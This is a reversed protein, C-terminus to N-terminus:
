GDTSPERFSPSSYLFHKRCQSRRTFVPIPRCFLNDKDRRFSCVEVRSIFPLVSIINIM